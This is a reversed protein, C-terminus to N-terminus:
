ARMPALRTQTVRVLLRKLFLSNDAVPISGESELLSQIHAQYSYTLVFVPQKGRVVSQIFPMIASVDGPNSLFEFMVGNGCSKARAWGQIIGDKEWVKDQIGNKRERSQLWEAYALGEAQRVIAPAVASYLQFVSWNDQKTRSRWTGTINQHEVILNDKFPSWQYLREAIYPQFGQEVAIQQIPSDLPLRLFLREIGHRYADATIQNFLERTLDDGAEHSVLLHSIQWVQSSNRNRAIILGVLRRDEIAIWHHWSGGLPLLQGVVAKRLAMNCNWAEPGGVYEQLGAAKQRALKMWDVLSLSRIIM